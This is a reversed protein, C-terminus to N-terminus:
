DCFYKITHTLKPNMIPSHLVYKGVLSYLSVISRVFNYAQFSWSFKIYAVQFLLSVSRNLCQFEEVSRCGQIAPLYPPLTDKALEIDNDVEHNSRVIPTQSRERSEDSDGSFKVTPKMNCNLKRNLM